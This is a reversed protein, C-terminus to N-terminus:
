SIVLHTYFQTTNTASTQPLQLVLQTSRLCVVSLTLHINIRYIMLEARMHEDSIVYCSLHKNRSIASWNIVYILLWVGRGCQPLFHTVPNPMPLTEKINKLNLLFFSWWCCVAQYPVWTLLVLKSKNEAALSDKSIIIMFYTQKRRWICSFHPFLNGKEREQFQDTRRRM